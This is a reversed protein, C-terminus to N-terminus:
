FPAGPPDKEDDDFEADHFETKKLTGGTDSQLAQIKLEADALIGRCHQILKMGEEFQRVSDELGIEGTEIAQVIRELRRLADEFTSKGKSVGSTERNGKTPRIEGM